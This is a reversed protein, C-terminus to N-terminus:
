TAAAAMAKGELLHAWPCPEGQLRHIAARHLDVTGSHRSWVVRFRARLGSLEVCVLDGFRLQRLIGALLAGSVSINRACAVQAFPTGDVSTGWLRVPIEAQVRPESRRDLVLANSPPQSM